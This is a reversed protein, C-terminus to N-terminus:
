VTRANAALQSPDSSSSELRPPGYVTESPAGEKSAAAAAAPTAMAAPVYPPSLGIFMRRAQPALAFPFQVTVNWSTKALSTPVRAAQESVNPTPPPPSENVIQWAPAKWGTFRM